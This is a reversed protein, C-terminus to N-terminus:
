IQLLSCHINEIGLLSIVFLWIRLREARVPVVFIALWIMIPTKTIFRSSSMKVYQGIIAGDEFVVISLSSCFVGPCLQALILGLFKYSGGAM